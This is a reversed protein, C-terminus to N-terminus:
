KNTVKDIWWQPRPKYTKAHLEELDVLNNVEHMLDKKYLRHLAMVSKDPNAKMIKYFRNFEKKSVIKM